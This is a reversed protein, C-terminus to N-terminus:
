MVAESERVEHLGLPFTQCLDGALYFLLTLCFVRLRQCLVRDFSFKVCM